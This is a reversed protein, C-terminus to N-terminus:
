SLLVPNINASQPFTAYPTEAKHLLIISFSAESLHTPPINIFLLMDEEEVLFFFFLVVRGVFSNGKEWEFFGFGM